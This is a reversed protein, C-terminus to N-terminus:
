LFDTTLRILTEKYKILRKTRAAKLIKEKLKVLIHSPIYREANIRSPTQQAEQIELTVKKDFKQLKRSNSRFINNRARGRERRGRSTGNYKHQYVQKQSM